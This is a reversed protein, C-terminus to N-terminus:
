RKNRKPKYDLNSLRENTVKTASGFVGGWPKWDYPETGEMASAKQIPGLTVGTNEVVDVSRRFTDTWRTGDKAIRTEKRYLFQGETLKSAM